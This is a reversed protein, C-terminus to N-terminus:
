NNKWQHYWANLLPVFESTAKQSGAASPHDDGSPYYLENNSNAVIHEINGNNVRHHNEPATLVNYFDFV